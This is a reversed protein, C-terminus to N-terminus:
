VLFPFFPLFALLPLLPLASCGTIPVAFVRIVVANGTLLQRVVGGVLTKSKAASGVVIDIFIVFCVAGLDSFRLFLRPRLNFLLLLVSLVTDLEQLKGKLLVGQYAYFLVSYLPLARFPDNILPQCTHPSSRARSCRSTYM